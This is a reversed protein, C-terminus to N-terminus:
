DKACVGKLTTLTAGCLTSATATLAGGITLLAVFELVTPAVNMMALVGLIVGGLGVLFDRVPALSLANIAFPGSPRRREVGHYAADYTFRHVRRMVRSHWLLGMGLAIVAVAGFRTDGLAVFNLIGLVVAALGALLAAAVGSSFVIRERSTENEPFRFMRTWAAGVAGLMLFAFGLVMATVPLIYTPLVHSLGLIALVLASLGWLSGITAGAVVLSMFWFPDRMPVSVPEEARPQQAVGGPTPQFTQTQREFPATTSSQVRNSESTVM